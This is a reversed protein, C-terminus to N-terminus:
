PKGRTAPIDIDDAPKPVSPAPPSIVPAATGTDSGSRSRPVTIEDAPKPATVAPASPTPPSASSASSASSTAGATPTTTSGASSDAPSSSSTSTGPSSTQTIQHINTDGCGDPIVVASTLVAPDSENGAQDITRVRYLYSNDPYPSGDSYSSATAATIGSLQTFDNPVLQAVTLGTTISQGGSSVATGPTAGASTSQPVLEREILFGATDPDTRQWTLNVACQTPSWTASLAAPASASVKLPQVDVLDSDSTLNDSDVARVWYVYENRWDLASSPGEVLWAGNASGAPLDSAKVSAVRTARMALLADPTLGTLPGIGSRLAASVASQHTLVGYRAASNVLTLNHATSGNAGLALKAGTAGAAGSGATNGNATMGASAATGASYGSAAAGGQSLTSRWLEYTVVEDGSDGDPVFEVQVGSDAAPTGLMLKPRTPPLTAPVRVALSLLPGPVNWRNLPVIRYVYYEADSRSLQDVYRPQQTTGLLVFDSDKLGGEAGGTGFPDGFTQWSMSVLAASISTCPHALAASSYSGSAHAAGSGGGTPAVTTHTAGSGTPAAGSTGVSACGSTVPIAPAHQMSKPRTANARYIEYKADQQGATWSLALSGGWDRPPPKVLPASWNNLAFGSTHTAGSARDAKTAVATGGGKASAMVASSSGGASAGGAGGATSASTPASHPAELPTAATFSSTLNSVTAPPTLDPYPLMNSTSPSSPQSNRTFVAVVLYQYYHDKSIATDTYTYVNLPSLLTNEWQANASVNTCGAQAATSGTGQAIQLCAATALADRANNAHLQVSPILTSVPAASPLQGAKTLAPTIPTPTLLVPAQGPQETDIRYIQFAIGPAPAASSGWIDNQRPDQYSPTWVVLAQQLPPATGLPNKFFPATRHYQRARATLFAAQQATQQPMLQVSVFPVPLPRHWDQVTFALQAPDSTRGFIDTVTVRYAVSAVPPTTDTFFSAAETGVVSSAGAGPSAGVNDTVIVPVDNLKVGQTAVKQANAPSAAMTDPLSLRYIDYQAVGIAAEDSASLRQWRLAVSDANLQQAQLSSPAAPKLGSKDGSVTITTTALQTGDKASALRYTYTQGATVNPDDFALGLVSAVEPHLAAGMLLTRRAQMTVDVATPTARKVPQVAVKAAATGAAAGAGGSVAPAAAVSKAATAVTALAAQPSHATRAASALHDFQAQASAGRTVTTSLPPLATTPGASTSKGLLSALAITHANGTRVATPATADTVVGLPSKNLPATTGAAVVAGDYRYLNFGGDPLWGDQLSWRVRIEINGQANVAAAARM